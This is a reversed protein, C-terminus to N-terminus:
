SLWLGVALINDIFFTLHINDNDTLPTPSIFNLQENEGSNGSGDINSLKRESYLVELLDSNVQKVVRGVTASDQYHYLSTNSITVTFINTTTVHDELWPPPSLEVTNFSKFGLTWVSIILRM